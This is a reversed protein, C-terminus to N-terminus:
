LPNVGLKVIGQKGPEMLNKLQRGVGGDAAIGLTHLLLRGEVQGHADMRLHQNQVLRHIAQVRHHAPLHHAHNQRIHRFVAGRHQNGGM